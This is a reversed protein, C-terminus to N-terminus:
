NNFFILLGLSSTRKVQMAQSYALINQIVRRNPLLDRFINKAFQKYFISNDM